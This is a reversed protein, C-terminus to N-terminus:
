IFFVANSQTQVNTMTFFPVDNNKLNEDWVLTYIWLCVHIGAAVCIFFM